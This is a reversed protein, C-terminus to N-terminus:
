YCITRACFLNMCLCVNSHLQVDLTHMLCRYLGSAVKVDGLGCYCEKRILSFNVTQWHMPLVFEVLVMVGFCWLQM